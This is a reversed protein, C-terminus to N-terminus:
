GGGFRFAIGQRHGDTLHKVAHLLEERAMEAECIKVPDELALSFDEPLPSEPRRAKQRWRDVTANRAIRFLWAVFPLGRLDYSEIAELAKLFVEETIDEAETLDRVKVAVYRYIRDFYLEDLEGFAEAERKRARLVLSEEERQM